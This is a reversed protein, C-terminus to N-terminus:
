RGKLRDWFRRKKKRAEAPEAKGFHQDRTKQDRARVREIEYPSMNEGWVVTDSRIFYHSRCPFNWSGISPFLTVAEGDFTLQWGVPSLPTVVKLGCGCFCNHVATAYPISVYLVGEQREKPIFEVFDHKIKVVRKV